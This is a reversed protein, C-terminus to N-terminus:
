ASPASIWVSTSAWLPKLIQWRGPRFRGGRSRVGISLREIKYPFRSNQLGDPGFLRKKPSSAPRKPNFPLPSGVAGPCGPQAGYGLGYGHLYEEGTCRTVNSARNSSCCTAPLLASRTSSHRSVARCTM